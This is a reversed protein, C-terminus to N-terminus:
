AALRLLTRVELPWARNWDRQQIATVLAAVDADDVSKLQPELRRIEADQQLAVAVHYELAARIANAFADQMDPVKHLTEAAREVDERRRLFCVAAGLRLIGSADRDLLREEVNQLLAARADAYRDLMLLLLGRVYESVWENFAQTQGLHPLDSIAGAANGLLGVIAARFAKAQRSFPRMQVVTDITTYAERLDGMRLLVNALAMRYIVISSFDLESDELLERYIKRAELLRGQRKAIEAKGAFLRHTALGDRVIRDYERGADDLRGWRRLVDAKAQRVTEDQEGASLSEYISMAEQFRGMHVYVDALSSRAILQEGSVEAQRLTAIADDFRGVRKFHDAIQVLTWADGPKISIATELCEYEFDTRFMDACQQAINCISKVAHEEGGGFSMQAEVLEKLFRRANADRGEAVAGTIGEVQRLAQVYSAHGHRPRPKTQRNEGSSDGPDVESIASVDPRSEAHDPFLATAVAKSVRSMVAREAPLALGFVLKVWASGAAQFTSAVLTEPVVGAGIAM